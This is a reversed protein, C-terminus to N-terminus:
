TKFEIGSHHDDLKMMWSWIFSVIVVRHAQYRDFLGDIAIILQM